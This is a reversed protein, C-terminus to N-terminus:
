RRVGLIRVGESLFDSVTVDDVVNRLWSLVLQDSELM